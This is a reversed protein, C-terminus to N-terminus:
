SIRNYALIIIFYSIVFSFIITIIKKLKYYFNKSYDLNLFIDLILIISIGCLFISYNTKILVSLAIFVGSFILYFTKNKELYLMTFLIAVLALFLGIINGYFHVNFFMWYLSFAGLLLALIKQVNENKFLIKSIYFILIINAVSCIANIYQIYLFNEGFLKYIASVFLTIPFQYPYLFLYQSTKLYYDIGSNLFSIAMEHILKQDNEPNLKLANIWYIFLILSFICISILLVYSPIKKLGKKILFFIIFFTFIILLIEEIGFSYKFYTKEDAHYFTCNFYATIFISLIGLIAIIISILINGYKLLYNLFNNTKKLNNKEM